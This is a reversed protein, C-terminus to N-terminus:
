QKARHISEPLLPLRTIFAGTANFVAAAVAPAPADMPLEGVGKAGFPGKSYPKEIIAVEIPPTDLATPIVYNTLEANQMSGKEYIANELLAYGLGQATGGMIQGEVFNPHIAKGVDAAAFVERVTVEYTLKDIELDVAVAGYGYVGYADGKYSEEDWQIHEPKEYRTVVRLPGCLKAARRLEPRTRPFDGVEKEVKDKLELAARRLINGVVMCTRSAVTPGSNPVKSTDPTQVHVLELPLGLTEAVIQSFMSITGQGMETSAAEIRIEGDSTLSVGARSALYDEGSGTFGAGHFVVSLGIGRWTPHSKKRNWRVNEKKKQDYRSRTLV